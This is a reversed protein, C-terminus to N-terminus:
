ISDLIAFGNNRATTSGPSAVMADKLAKIPNGSNGQFYGSILSNLSNPDCAAPNTPAAPRSLSPGAVGEPAQQEGCAALALAFTACAVTTRIGMAPGEPLALFRPFRSNYRCACLHEVSDAISAGPTRGTAGTGLDNDPRTTCIRATDPPLM